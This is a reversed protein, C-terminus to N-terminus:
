YKEKIDKVIKDFCNSFKANCLENKENYFSITFNKKNENIIKPNNLILFNYNANETIITPMGANERDYMFLNDLKTRKNNPLVKYDNPNESLYQLIDDLGISFSVCNNRRERVEKEHAQVDKAVKINNNLTAAQFITGSPMYVINRTTETGLSKRTYLLQVAYLKGDREIFATSKSMNRSQNVVVSKVILFVSIFVLWIALIFGPINLFTFGFISGFFIILYVVLYLGFGLTANQEWIGDDKTKMYIKDEM